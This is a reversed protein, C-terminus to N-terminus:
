KTSIEPNELDLTPEWLHIEHTLATIEAQYNGAPARPLKARFNGSDDTRGELTWCSDGESCNFNGDKNSDYTLVLTVIAESVPEDGENLGGSENSDRRINVTVDLNNRASWNMAYVGM